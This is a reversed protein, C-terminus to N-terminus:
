VPYEPITESAFLHKLIFVFVKNRREGDREERLFARTSLPNELSPGHITALLIWNVFTSWEWKRPVFSEALSWERKRPAFSKALSWERKRPVFSEALAGNGSERPLARLLARIEKI